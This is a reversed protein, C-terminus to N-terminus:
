GGGIEELLLETNREVAEVMQETTWEDRDAVDWYRVREEWAPFREAFMPRHEAQRLAIVLNARELDERALQRRSPATDDARIGREQMAQAAFPSLDETVLDTRLGRSTARAEMGLARARHNFYAEAYRSRYINGTCIFLVTKGADHPATADPM